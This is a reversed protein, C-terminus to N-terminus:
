KIGAWSEAQKIPINPKTQKNKKLLTSNWAPLDPSNTQMNTKSSVHFLSSHFISNRWHSIKPGCLCFAKSENQHLLYPCCIVSSCLMYTIFKCLIIDELMNWHPRGSTPTAIMLLTFVLVVLLLLPLLQRQSLLVSLTKLGFSLYSRTEM